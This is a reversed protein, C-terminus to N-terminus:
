MSFAVETQLNDLYEQADDSSINNQALVDVWESESSVSMFSDISKNTKDAVFKALAVDSLQHKSELLGKEIVASEVKLTSALVPIVKKVQVSKISENLSASANVFQQSP